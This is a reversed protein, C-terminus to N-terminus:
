VSLISFKMLYESFSISTAMLHAPPYDFFANLGQIICNM